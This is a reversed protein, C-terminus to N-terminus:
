RAAARAEFFAEAEDREASKTADLAAQYARLATAYDEKSAHGDAYLEKVRQLSEHLGLNAAIVFHKLARELRGNKTEHNGLNYRAQPHGGIAAEEIHHVRKEDDKEVGWRNDYMHSLNYHAEANGLEAAKTLYELAKEYDGEDICNRGMFEMADPDNKKIRKMIRKNAEEDSKPAPERCYVCRHELGAEHERTQNAINCGDCTSKSCCPMFTSKSANLPLPLCCIPCDGLHSEDPQEFLDIDRLKALRKKCLKKHQPRHNKQCEITCYKVLGCACNKLIVDDIGAKGCSACCTDVEEADTSM